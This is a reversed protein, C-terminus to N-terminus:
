VNPKVTLCTDRDRVKSENLENTESSRSTCFFLMKKRSLKFYDNPDNLAFLKTSSFPTKYLM